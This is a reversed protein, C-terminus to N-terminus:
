LINLLNTKVLHSKSVLLTFPLILTLRLLSLHGFIEVLDGSLGLDRALSLASNSLLYALPLTGHGYDYRTLFHLLRLNPTM